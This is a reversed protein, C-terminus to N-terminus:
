EVNCNDLKELNRSKEEVTETKERGSKCNDLKEQNRYWKKM